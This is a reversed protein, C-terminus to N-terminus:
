KMFACKVCIFFTIRVKTTNSPSRSSTQQAHSKRSVNRRVGARLPVVSRSFRETSRRKEHEDEHETHSRDPDRHPQPLEENEKHNSSTDHFSGQGDKSQSLM